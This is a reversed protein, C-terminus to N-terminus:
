NNLIVFPLTAEFKTHVVRRIHEVIRFFVYMEVMRFYGAIRYNNYRATPLPHTAHTQTVPVLLQQVIGGIESMVSDCRWVDCVAWVVLVCDVVIAVMLTLGDSDCRWVDCVAWVVLVCDVVIAVMLTLGDSDCRWVDCVAWVVLVGDVVIAVMLKLGDYM